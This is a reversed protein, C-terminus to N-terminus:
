KRFRYEIGWALAAIKKKYPSADRIKYFEKPPRYSWKKLM